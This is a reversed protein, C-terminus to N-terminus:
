FLLKVTATGAGADGGSSEGVCAIKVYRRITPPLSINVNSAAYADDAATVRLVPNAVVAVNTWSSNDASDLVRININKTNTGAVSTTQINLWVKETLPFPTAQGLDIGNTSTTNAANPLACNASLNADALRRENTPSAM